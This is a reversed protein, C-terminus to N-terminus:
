FTLLYYFTGTVKKVKFEVVTIVRLEVCPCLHLAYFEPVTLQKQSRRLTFHFKAKNPWVGIEYKYSRSGKKWALIQTTFDNKLIAYM